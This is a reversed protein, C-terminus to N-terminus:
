GDLHQRFGGLQRQRDEALGVVGLFDAELVAIEVQAALGQV